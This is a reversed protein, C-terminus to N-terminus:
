KERRDSKKGSRERKEKRHRREVDKGAVKTFKKLDRKIDDKSREKLIRQLQDEASKEEALKIRLIKMKFDIGNSAIAKEAGASDKFTIFAIRRLKGTNRDIPLRIRGRIEGFQGFFDQLEKESTNEPLNGVFIKDQQIIGLAAKLIDKTVGPEDLVELLKM